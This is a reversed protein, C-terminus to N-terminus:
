VDDKAETDANCQLLLRTTELHGKGASWLLPTYQRFFLLHIFKRLFLEAEYFCYYYYPVAIVHRGDGKYRRQLAAFSPL